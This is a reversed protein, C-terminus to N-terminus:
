PRLGAAKELTKVRDFLKKLNNHYFLGEKFERMPVAPSGLMATKEPVDKAIGAQGGIVVHDGINIHGALGAQGAIIAYNGVRTSGSIGVQSIIIAHKGIVVNHGIQVLNDIKTGEGIWTRGFRARDIAVNAGIEVDDDIQVIGVQPIKVHKGNVQEYGFGDSGVVTGSHITVRNGIVCRERITTNPHIFSDEGIRTEVGIFAGAGIVTRDGIVAGTEIVAHAGISIDAGLTVGEAVV